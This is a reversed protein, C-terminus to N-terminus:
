RGLGYNLYTHRLYEPLYMGCRLPLNPMKDFAPQEEYDDTSQITRLACKVFVDSCAYSPSVNLAGHSSPRQAPPVFRHSASEATCHEFCM